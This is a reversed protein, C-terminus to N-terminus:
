ANEGTKIVEKKIKDIIEQGRLYALYTKGFYKELNTNTNGKNFSDVYQAYATTREKLGDQYDRNKKTAMKDTWEITRRIVEQNHEPSFDPDPDVNVFPLDVKEIKTTKM